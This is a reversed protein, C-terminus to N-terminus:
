SDLRDYFAFFGSPLSAGSEAELTLDGAETTGMAETTGEATLFVRAVQNRLVEATLGETHATCLVFPSPSKELLAACGALLSHLDRDIKWPQSAPGRGFSPPDLIVADYRSGRRWEREVWRRADEEIWRIADEPIANREANCRATRVAARQSDVHTVHAGARAAAITSGGTSAFLNLVRLPDAAPRHRQAVKEAIRKRLEEQEPFYGVQGAAGLGLEHAIDNAWVLWPSPLPAHVEWGTRHDYRAQFAAWERPVSRQGTAAPAPRVVVYDGFRELKEELGVDLLRYSPHM